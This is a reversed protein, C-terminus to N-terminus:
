SLLAHATLIWEWKGEGVDTFQLHAATVRYDRHTLAWHGLAAWALDPEFEVIEIVIPEEGQCIRASM